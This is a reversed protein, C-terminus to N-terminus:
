FCPSRAHSAYSLDAFRKALRLKRAPIEESYLIKYIALHLIPAKGLANDLDFIHKVRIDKDDHGHIFDVRYGKVHREPRELHMYFRNWIAYEFPYKASDIEKSEPAAQKAYGEILIEQSYLESVKNKLLYDAYRANINDITEALAEQTKDAYTVGIRKALSVIQGLGIGAHTYISIKGDVITYSIPRLAPKVDKNIISDIRERKILGRAILKQMSLLSKAHEAQLTQPKFVANAEALLILEMSHNSTLIEYPVCLEHLKQFIRLTFYDNSGRDCFEDGIFRVTGVPNAKLAAVIHDFKALDEQSIADPSLKYIRVFQAYDDPDITIVNQRVLFYLLKLANGHLDGITLENDEHPPHDPDSLPYQDLNAQKQYIIKNTIRPRSKSM